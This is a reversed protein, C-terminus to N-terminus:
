VRERKLLEKRNTSFNCIKVCIMMLEQVDATQIWLTEFSRQLRKTNRLHWRRCLFCSHLAEKCAHKCCLFVHGGGM